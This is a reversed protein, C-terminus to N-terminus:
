LEVGRDCSSLVTKVVPKNSDDSTALILASIKDIRLKNIIFHAMEEVPKSENYILLSSLSDFMLFKRGSKVKSLMRDVHMSIEELSAPNEIFVVNEGGDTTKGAMTSICDIFYLDDATIGNEGMADKLSSYPKNFTLYVGGFQKMAKLVKLAAIIVKSHEVPNYTLLVIPSESDPFADSLKLVAEEMKTRRAEQDKERVGKTSEKVSMTIMNSSKMYQKDDQDHYLVELPRFDYVGIEKPTIKFLLTKSENKKLIDIRDAESVTEFEIPVNSRFVIKKVDQGGKNTIIGNLKVIEDKEASSPQNVSLIIEPKSAIHGLLKEAETKLADIHRKYFFDLETKDIGSTRSVVNNLMESSKAYEAEMLMLKANALNLQIDALNAKLEDGLHRYLDVAKKLNDAAKKPLETRLYGEGIDSYARAIKEDDRDAKLEESDLFETQQWIMKNCHNREASEQNMYGYCWSALKYSNAANFYDKKKSFDDGTKEFYQAAHSYDGAQLYADTARELKGANVYLKAAKQFAEVAKEANGGKKESEGMIFYLDAAKENDKLKEYSEAAALYKSGVSELRGSVKDSEALSLSLDVIKKRAEVSEFSKRAADALTAADNFYKIATEIDGLTEHCGGLDMLASAQSAQDKTESALKEAISFYTIAEKLKNTQKYCKGVRTYNKIASGLNSEKRYLEAAKLYYDIANEYDKKNEYSSAVKEDCEAFKLYDNSKEALGGALKYSELAKDNDGDLQYCNGASVLNDSAKPYDKLKINLAGAMEYLKGAKKCDKIKEYYQAAEQLAHSAEFTQGLEAYMLAAKEDYKAASDFNGLTEFCQGASGYALAAKHKIGLKDFMDGARIYYESASNLNHFKEDELLVEIKSYCEAVKVLLEAVDTTQDDAKSKLVKLYNAVAKRYNKGAYSNEALKLAVSSTARDLIGM